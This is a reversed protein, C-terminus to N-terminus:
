ASNSTIHIGVTCSQDKIRHSFEIWLYLFFFRMGDMGTMSGMLVCMCMANQNAQRQCQRCDQFWGHIQYLVCHKFYVNYLVASITYKRRKENNIFYSQTSRTFYLPHPHRSTSPTAPAPLCVLRRSPRASLRYLLSGMDTMM